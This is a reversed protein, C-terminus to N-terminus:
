ISHDGGAKVPGGVGCVWTKLTGCQQNPLGAVLSFRISGVVMAMAIKGLANELNVKDIRLSACNVALSDFARLEHREEDVPRRTTDDHFGAAAGM